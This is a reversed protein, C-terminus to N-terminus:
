SQAFERELEATLRVSPWSMVNDHHRKAGDRDLRLLVSLEFNCRSSTTWNCSGIILYNEGTFEANDAIFLTKSHQIGRGPPLQRGVTQYEAQIDKGNVLSIETGAARMAKLSALMDRTGKGLCTRRDAIVTTQVGRRTTEQTDVVIAEVDFTCCTLLWLWSAQTKQTLYRCMKQTQAVNMM